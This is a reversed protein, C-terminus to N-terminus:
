EESHANGENKSMVAGCEHCFKMWARGRAGCRGCDAVGNGRINVWQGRVQEPQVPSLSNIVNLVDEKSCVPGDLRIFADLAERRSICEDNRNM